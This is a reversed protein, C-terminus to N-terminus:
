KEVNRIVLATQMSLPNTRSNNGVQFWLGRQSMTIVEESSCMIDYVHASSKMQFSLFFLESSVFDTKKSVHVM